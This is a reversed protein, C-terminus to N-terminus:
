AWFSVLAVLSSADVKAWLMFGIITSYVDTDFLAFSCMCMAIVMSPPSTQKELALKASGAFEHSLCHSGHPAVHFAHTQFEGWHHPSM